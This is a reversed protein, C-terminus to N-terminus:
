SSVSITSSQAQANHHFLVLNPKTRKYVCALPPQAHATLPLTLAHDVSLTNHLQFYHVVYQELALM